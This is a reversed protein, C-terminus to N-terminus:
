MWKNIWASLDHLDTAKYGCEMINRMGDYDKPSTIIGLYSKIPGNMDDGKPGTDICRLIALYQNQAVMFVTMHENDLKLTLNNDTNIEM